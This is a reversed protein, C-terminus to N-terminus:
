TKEHEMEDILDSMQNRLSLLKRKYVTNDENLALVRLEDEIKNLLNLKDPKTNKSTNNM